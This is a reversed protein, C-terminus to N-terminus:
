SALMRPWVHFRRQVTHLTNAGRCGTPLHSTLAVRLRASNRRARHRPVAAAARRWVRRCTGWPLVAPAAAVAARASCQRVAGAGGRARCRQRFVGAARRAGDGRGGRQAGICPRCAHQREPTRPRARRHGRPAAGRARAECRCLTYRALIHAHQAAMVSLQRALTARWAEAPAHEASGDTAVGSLAQLWETGSDVVSGGQLWQAGSNGASPMQLWEAGSDGPSATRHWEVGSSGRSLGVM